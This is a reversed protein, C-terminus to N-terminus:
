EELYNTSAVATRIASLNTEFDESINMSGSEVSYYSLILCIM